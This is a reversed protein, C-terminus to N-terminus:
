FTVKGLEHGEKKRFGVPRDVPSFSKIKKTTFKLWLALVVGDHCGGFLEVLQDLGKWFVLDVFDEVEGFKEVLFLEGGRWGFSDGEAGEGSKPADGFTGSGGRAITLQL